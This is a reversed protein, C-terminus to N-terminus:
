ARAQQEADILSRRAASSAQELSATPYSCGNLLGIGDQCVDSKERARCVDSKERARCVDSKNGVASIV